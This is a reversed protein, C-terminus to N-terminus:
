FYIDVIKLFNEDAKANQTYCLPAPISEILPIKANQLALYTSMKDDCTEVAQASNFLRFGAGELMKGLYKDKDLYVIFDYKQPLQACIQGELAISACIEGNKLVDTKVGRRTLAMAISEGQRLFKQACPYANILVLGKM